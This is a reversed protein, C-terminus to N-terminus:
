LHISDLGSRSSNDKRADRHLNGDDLLIMWFHFDNQLVSELSISLRREASGSNREIFTLLGRRLISVSSDLTFLHRQNMLEFLSSILNAKLTVIPEAMRVIEARVAATKNSSPVTRLSMRGSLRQSMASTPVM